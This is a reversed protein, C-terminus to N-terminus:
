EPSPFERLFAHGACTWVDFPLRSLGWLDGTPPRLLVLRHSSTDHRGRGVQHCCVPGSRWATPPLNLDVQRGGGPIATLVAPPLLPFLLHLPKLQSNWTHSCPERARAHSHAGAHLYPRRVEGRRAQLVQLCLMVPEEGHGLGKARNQKRSRSHAGARCNAPSSQTLYRSVRVVSDTVVATVSLPPGPRRLGQTRPFSLRTLGACSLWPLSTRPPRQAGLHGFRGCWGRCGCSPSCIGDQM